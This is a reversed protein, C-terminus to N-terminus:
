ENVEEVVDSSKLKRKDEGRKEVRLSPYAVVKQYRKIFASVEHYVQSQLRRYSCALTDEIPTTLSM